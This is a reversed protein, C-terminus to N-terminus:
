GVVLHNQCSDGERGPNLKDGWPQIGTAVDYENEFYGHQVHPRM